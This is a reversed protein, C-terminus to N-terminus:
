NRKGEKNERVKHKMFRIKGIYSTSPVLEGMMCTFNLGPLYVLQLSDINSPPIIKNFFVLSSSPSSSSSSSISYRSEIEERNFSSSYLPLDKRIIEDIEQSAEMLLSETPKRQCGHYSVTLRIKGGESFHTGITSGGLPFGCLSAIVGKVVVPSSNLPAPRPVSSMSHM